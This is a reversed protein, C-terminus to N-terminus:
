NVIFKIMECNDGVCGIIDLTDGIHPPYIYVLQQGHGDDDSYTSYNIIPETMPIGQYIFTFSDTSTWFVRTMEDTNYIVRTYSSPSGIPYNYLYYGNETPLEMYTSLPSEKEQESNFDSCGIFLLLLIFRIGM